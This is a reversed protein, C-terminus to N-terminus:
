LNQTDYDNVIAGLHGFTYVFKLALNVIGMEKRSEKMNMVDLYCKNTSM